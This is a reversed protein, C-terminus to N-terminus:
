HRRIAARLLNSRFNMKKPFLEKQDGLHTSEVDFTFDYNM